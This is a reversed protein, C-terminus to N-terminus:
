MGKKLHVMAEWSKTSSGKDDVPQSLSSNQLTTQKGDTNLLRSEFCYFDKDLIVISWLSNYSM